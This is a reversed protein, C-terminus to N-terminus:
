SSGNQSGALSTNGVCKALFIGLMVTELAYRIGKPKRKDHLTQFSAYLSSLNIVKGINSEM